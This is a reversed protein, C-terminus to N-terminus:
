TRARPLHRRRWFVYSEYAVATVLLLVGVAIAVEVPYFFAAMILPILLLADMMLIAVGGDYSVLGDWYRRFLAVM